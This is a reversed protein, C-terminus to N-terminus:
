PRPYLVSKPTLIDVLIGRSGNESPWLLTQHGIRLTRTHDNGQNKCMERIYGQVLTRMRQLLEM